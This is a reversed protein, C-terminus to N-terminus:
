FPSLGNSAIIYLQFAVPGNVPTVVGYSAIVGVTSGDDDIHDPLVM